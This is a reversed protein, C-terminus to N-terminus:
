TGPGVEELALCFTMLDAGSGGDEEPYRMGAFGLACLERVLERPYEHADDLAAAVPAIREDSFRTFTDKVAQQEESLVFDM